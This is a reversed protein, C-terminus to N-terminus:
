DILNKKDAKLLRRINTLEQSIHIVAAAVSIGLGRYRELLKFILWSEAVSLDYIMHFPQVSPLIKLVLLAVDTSMQAVDTASMQRCKDVNASMQRRNM